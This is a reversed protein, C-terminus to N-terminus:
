KLEPPLQNWQGKPALMGIARAEERHSDIWAPHCESCCPIWLREDLQLEGNWGRGHKHHCNTSRAAKRQRALCCWCFLNEPQLLWVKVRANYIRDQKAREPRRSRIQKPRVGSTMTGRPQSRQLRRKAAAGDLRKQKSLMAPRDSKEAQDKFASRWLAERKPKSNTKM